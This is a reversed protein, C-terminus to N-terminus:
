FVMSCDVNSPGTQLVPALLVLFAWLGKSGASGSWSLILFFQLVTHAHSPNPSYQQPNLFLCPLFPSFFSALVCCATFAFFFSFLCLASIPAWLLQSHEQKSSDGQWMLWLVSFGSDGPGSSQWIAILVECLQVQGEEAESFFWFVLGVWCILFLWDAILRNIHSFGWYNLWTGSLVASLLRHAIRTCCCPFYSACLLQNTDGKCSQHSGPFIWAMGLIDSCAPTDGAARLVTVPTTANSCQQAPHLWCLEAAAKPNLQLNPTDCWFGPPHQKDQVGSIVQHHHPTQFVERM